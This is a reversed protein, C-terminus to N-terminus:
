SPIKQVDRTLRFNICKRLVGRVRHLTVRMAAPSEGIEAAYETLPESKVYRQEVLRREKESLNDLCLELARMRVDLQEPEPSCSEALYEALEEDLMPLHRQALRKRHALIEYRAVAYMWARFNTGLEFADRKEWLVLNAQQIVDSTEPAGPLQSLVFARLTPQHEILLGVFESQKNLDM